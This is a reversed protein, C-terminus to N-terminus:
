QRVLRERMSRREEASAQSAEMAIAYQAPSPVSGTLSTIVRSVSAFYSSSTAYGSLWVWLLQQYPDTFQRCGSYRSSHALMYIYHALADRNSAYCAWEARTTVRVGPTYEEQTGRSVVTAPHVLYGVAASIRAARADRDEQEGSAKVAFLNHCDGVLASDRRGLLSSWGSEAIMQGLVLAAHIGFQESLRNVDPLMGQLFHDKDDGLSRTVSLSYRGGASWERNAVFAVLREIAHDEVWGLAGFKRMVPVSAMAECVGTAGASTYDSLAGAMAPVLGVRSPFGSHDPTSLMLVCLAAASILPM